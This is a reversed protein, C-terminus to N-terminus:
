IAQPHTIFALVKAGFPTIQNRLQLIGKSIIFSPAYFVQAKQLDNVTRSIQDDEWDPLLKRFMEIIDITDWETESITVGAEQYATVPDNLVRLLILHRSQWTFILNTVEEIEDYRPSSSVISNIFVARLADLKEQQRTESAKSFIDETLDRFNDSRIFESNISEELRKLDEALTILFKHLRENKQRDLFFTATGSLVGGAIPVAQLAISVFEVTTEAATSELPNESESM